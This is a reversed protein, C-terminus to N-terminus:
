SGFGTEHLKEIVHKITLDKIWKSNFETYPMRYPDLKKRKCQIGLKELVMQQFAQGKGWGYTHSNIEPCDITTWQATHRDKLDCFVTKIVTAEHSRGNHEEKEFNNQNKPTGKLNLISKLISKEIEVLFFFVM